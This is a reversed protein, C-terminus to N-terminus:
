RRAPKRKADAKAKQLEEVGVSRLYGKGTRAYIPDASFRHQMALGEAMLERFLPDALLKPDIAPKMAADYAAGGGNAVGCDGCAIM